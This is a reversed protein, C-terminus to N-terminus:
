ISVYSVRVAEVVGGASVLIGDGEGISTRGRGPVSDTGLSGIGAGLGLVALCGLFYSAM